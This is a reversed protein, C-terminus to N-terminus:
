GRAGHVPDEFPRPDVVKKHIGGALEPAPIVLVSDKRQILVKCKNERFM